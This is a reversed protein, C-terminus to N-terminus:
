SMVSWAHVSSAQDSNPKPSREQMDQALLLYSHRGELIVRYIPHVEVARGRFGDQFLCAYSISPAYKDDGTPCQVSRRISHSAADRREARAHHTSKVLA